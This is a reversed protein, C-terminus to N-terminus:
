SITGNPCSLAASRNLEFVAEAEEARVAGDPWVARRVALVDDVGIPAGAKLAAAFDSYSFSM